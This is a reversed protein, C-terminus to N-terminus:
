EYVTLWVLSIDMGVNAQACEANFACNGPVIAIPHGPFLTYQASTYATVQWFPVGVGAATAWTYIQGPQQPTRPDIPAGKTAGSYLTGGGNGSVLKFVLQTSAGLGYNIGYVRIVSGDTANNYVGVGTLNGVCPGNHAGGGMLYRAFWDPPTRVVSGRPKRNLAM